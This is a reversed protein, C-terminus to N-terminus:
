SAKEFPPAAVRGCTLKPHLDLLVSRLLPSSIQQLARQMKQLTEQEVFELQQILLPDRSKDLGALIEPYLKHLVSGFAHSPETSGDSIELYPQLYFVAAVRSKVMRAFIAQHESHATKEVAERYRETGDHLFHILKRLIEKDTGSM